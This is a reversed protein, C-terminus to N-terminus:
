SAGLQRSCLAAKLMPLAARDKDRNAAEKSQIIKALPLIKIPIDEILIESAGRIEEEISALGSCSTVLDFGRLNDSALLPPNSDVIGPPIYSAGVKKVAALFHPGGLDKIWLDIDQTVAPVGQLLAASLGVILYEVGEEHLARFFALESRSLTIGEAVM